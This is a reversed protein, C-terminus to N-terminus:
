PERGVVLITLSSPVIIARPGGRGSVIGARDATILYIQGTKSDLTPGSSLAAKTAVDDQAVVFSTPSNEKIVTLKGNGCSCFLEM